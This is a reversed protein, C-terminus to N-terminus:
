KWPTTYFLSSSLYDVLFFVMMAPSLSKIRQFYRPQIRAVRPCELVPPPQCNTSMKSTYKSLMYTHWDDPTFLHPIVVICLCTQIQHISNVLSSIHWKNNHRWNGKSYGNKEMMAVRHSRLYWFPCASCTGSWSFCKFFRPRVHETTAFWQM